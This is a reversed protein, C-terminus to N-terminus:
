FAHLKDIQMTDKFFFWRNERNIICFSRDNAVFIVFRNSSSYEIKIRNNGIHIYIEIGRVASITLIRSILIGKCPM